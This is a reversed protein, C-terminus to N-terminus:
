QKVKSCIEKTDLKTLSPQIRKDTQADLRNGYGMDRIKQFDRGYVQSLILTFLVFLTKTLKHFYNQGRLGGPPMLSEWPGWVMRRSGSGEM